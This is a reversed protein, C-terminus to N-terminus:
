SAADKRVDLIVVQGQHEALWGTEVLPGPIQTSAASTWSVFLTSAALLWYFLRGIGHPKM